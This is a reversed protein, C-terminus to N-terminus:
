GDGRLVGDADRRSTSFCRGHALLSGCLLATHPLCLVVLNFLESILAGGVQRHPGPEALARSM